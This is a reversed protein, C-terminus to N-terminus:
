QFVKNAFNKMMHPVLDQPHDGGFTFFKSSAKEVSSALERRTEVDWVVIRITVQDPRGSWETARDEWNLITPEFLVTASIEHATAMADEFSQRKEAIVSKRSHATIVSHLNQTVTKGSGSYTKEGYVGDSALKIYAVGSWTLSESPATFMDTKYKSTCATIFLAFVLIIIKM